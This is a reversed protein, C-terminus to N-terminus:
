IYIKYIIIILFFIYIYRNSTFIINYFHMESFINNLIKLVSIFLIYIIVITIIFLFIKNSYTFHIYIVFTNFCITIYINYLGCHVLIFAYLQSYDLALLEKYYFINIFNSTIIFGSNM